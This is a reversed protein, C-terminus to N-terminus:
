DVPYVMSLQVKMISNRIKLDQLFYVAKKGPKEEPSALGGLLYIATLIKDRDYIESNHSWHNIKLNQLKLILFFAFLDAHGNATDTSEVSELSDISLQILKKSLYM